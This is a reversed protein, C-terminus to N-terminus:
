ADKNEKNETKDEARTQKGERSEPIMKGGVFAVVVTSFHAMVVAIFAPQFAGNWNTLKAVDSSLLGCMMGLAVILLVWGSTTKTM